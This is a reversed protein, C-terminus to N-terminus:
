SAGSFLRRAVDPEAVTRARRLRGDLSNEVARKGDASTATVRGDEASVEVTCPEGVAARAEGALADLAAAAGPSTKMRQIEAAARQFSEALLARRASLSEARAQMKADGMLRQQETALERELRALGDARIRECEAEAAVRIEEARVEAEAILREREESARDDIAGILAGPGQEPM